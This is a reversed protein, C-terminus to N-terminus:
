TTVGKESMSVTLGREILKLLVAQRSVKFYTGKREIDVYADVGALLQNPIRLTLDTNDLREDLPEGEERLQPEGREKRKRKPSVKAADDNTDSM